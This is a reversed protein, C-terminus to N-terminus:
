KYLNGLGREDARVPTATLGVLKPPAIRLAQALQRLRLMLLMSGDSVSHHAEDTIILAPMGGNALIRDMRESVLVTRKGTASKKINGFSDIVVDDATIEAMDTLWQ